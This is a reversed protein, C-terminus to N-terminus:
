RSHHTQTHDHFRSSVLLGLGMYPQRAVPFFYKYYNYYIQFTNIGWGPRSPLIPLPPIAGSIRLTPVLYIQTVTIIIIADHYTTLRRIQFLWSWHKGFLNACFMTLSEALFRPIFVHFNQFVLIVCLIKFIGRLVPCISWNKSVISATM